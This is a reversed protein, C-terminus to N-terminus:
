HTEEQLLTTLLSLMRARLDRRNSKLNNQLKGCSLRDGFVTPVSSTMETTWTGMGDLRWDWKKLLCPAELWHSWLWSGWLMGQGLGRAQADQLYMHCWHRSRCKISRECMNQVFTPMKGMPECWHTMVLSREIFLGRSRTGSRLSHM